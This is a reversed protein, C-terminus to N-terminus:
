PSLELDDPTHFKKDPGASRVTMRTASEAHFFFPTGWRDCLEGAGNIAPHDPALFPFRFKNKGTLAATIEANSGVPNGDRLFNTRYNEIVDLVIRLDHSPPRGPDNLLDALHSVEPAPVQSQPNSIQSSPAAVPPPASTPATTAARQPPPAARNPWLFWALLLLLAAAAALLRPRTM